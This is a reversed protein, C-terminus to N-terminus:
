QSIKVAKIAVACGKAGKLDDKFYRDMAKGLKQLVFSPLFPASIGYLNVIKVKWVGILSILELLDLLRMQQPNIYYKAWVLQFKYKQLIEQWGHVSKISVHQVKKNKWKVYWKKKLLLSSNFYPTWTTFLFEGKHRLVRAIESILAEPHTIHEIVCNSFVTNFHENPYPIHHADCCHLESYLGTKCARKIEKSSIDIGVDFKKFVLSSFKGDGCGLDLSPSKLHGNKKLNVAEFARVVAMHPTWIRLFKEIYFKKNENEKKTDIM